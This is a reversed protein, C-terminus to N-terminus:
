SKKRWVKSGIFERMRSIWSDMEAVDKFQVWQPSLLMVALASVGCGDCVVNKEDNLCTCKPCIWLKMKEGSFLAFRM